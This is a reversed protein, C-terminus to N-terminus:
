KRKSKLAVGKLGEQMHSALGADPLAALQSTSLVAEWKYAQVGECTCRSHM